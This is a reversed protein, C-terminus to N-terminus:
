MEALARLFRWDLLPRAMSAVYGRHIKALDKLYVVSDSIGGSIVLDGIEEVSTYEGTIIIPLFESGVQVRGGDAVLNKDRLLSYLQEQSIGLAKMKQRSMEVYVAEPQLAYLEVKKVDQVLLLERRLLDVYRRIEEYSYGEGTVAMFLGFVDGYDDIVLSPGAGPPLSGQADSIKRRLEDWVQPLSSKDYKNKITVTVTSLGREAKSVVRDLQGLQQAAKEIENSVEEEVEAASANPYATIVLADKITFEPDELRGLTRYAVLGGILMVGTMVLTITKKRISFEAINM